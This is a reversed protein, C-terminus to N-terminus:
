KMCVCVSVCVSVHVCLRATMTMVVQLRWEAQEVSVCLLYDSQPMCIPQVSSGILNSFHFSLSLVSTIIRGSVMVCVLLWMCLIMCIDPECEWVCMAFVFATCPTATPTQRGCRMLQKTTKHLSLLLLFRLSLTPVTKSCHELTQRRKTESARCSKEWSNNKLKKRCSSSNNGCHKIKRRASEGERLYDRGGDKLRARVEAGNGGKEGCSIKQPVRRKVQTHEHTNQQVGATCTLTCTDM